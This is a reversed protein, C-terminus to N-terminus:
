SCITYRSRCFRGLVWDKRFEATTCESCPQIEKETLIYNQGKCAGCVQTAAAVVPTSSISVAAPRSLEHFRRARNILFGSPNLINNLFHPRVDAIFDDLAM